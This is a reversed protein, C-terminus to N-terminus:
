NKTPAGVVKYMYWEPHEIYYAGDSANPNPPLFATDPDAIHVVLTKNHAAIDRYIANLAPDDPLIYRGNTDKVQLGINKWVKAAVAGRGFADNLRPIAQQAFDKDNFRYADFTTLAFVEGQSKGVLYFVDTSEKALNKREPHANDSVVMIDLTHMHLKHLLEVYEPAYAYIHTHADIPSLETFAQLEQPTFVEAAAPERGAQHAWAGSAGSLPLLVAGILFVRTLWEKSM